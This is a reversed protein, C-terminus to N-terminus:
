AYLVVEQYTSTREESDAELVRRGGGVVGGLMGDRNLRDFLKGRLPLVSFRSLLLTEDVYAAVLGTL